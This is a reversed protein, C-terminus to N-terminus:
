KVFKIIVCRDLEQGGKITESNNDGNATMNIRSEDIGFNMLYEKVSGCRKESLMQNHAASGVKSAMGILEVKLQPYAGLTKIAESMKVLETNRIDWRDNAFLINVPALNSVEIEKEITDHVVQIITDHIIKDVYVPVEKTVTETTSTVITDHVILVQTTNLEHQPITNQINNYINTVKEQRKPLEINYKLGLLLNQQFYNPSMGNADNKFSAAMKETADAKLLFTLNRVFFDFELGVKVYAGYFSKEYSTRYYDMGTGTFLYFDFWKWNRDNLFTGFPSWAFAPGFSINGSSKETVDKITHMDSLISSSPNYGFDVGVRFASDPQIGIEFLTTFDKGKNAFGLTNFGVNTGINLNSAFSSMSIVFLFLTLLKKM